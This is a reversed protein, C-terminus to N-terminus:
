YALHTSMFEMIPGWDACCHCAEAELYEHGVGLATLTRDFARTAEMDPSDPDNNTDQFILLGNLRIPQDLYGPLDSAPDLVTNIRQLVEPVIQPQGDLFEFPMDLYFPPNNPNPAAAAAASILMRTDSPLAYFEDFSRPELTFEFMSALWPAGYGSMPAAVGFVDPRKLALHFSGYGGM